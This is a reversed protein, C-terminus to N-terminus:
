CAEPIKDLEIKEEAARQRLRRRLMNTFGPNVHRAAPMLTQRTRVRAYRPDGNSPDQWVPISHVLCYQEIERRSVALIPRLVNQRQSPMLKTQGHVAGWLWTEAVDDLNHGTLIWGPQAHLWAYREDRWHEEPSQSRGRESQIRGVRLEIGHEACFARVRPEAQAQAGTGHDFMLATVTRRRPRSVFHLLAM